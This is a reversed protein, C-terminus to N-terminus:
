GRRLRCKKPWPPCARWPQLLRDRSCPQQMAAADGKCMPKTGAAARQSAAMTHATGSGCGDLGGAPLAAAAVPFAPSAAAAETVRMGATFGRPWTEDRGSTQAALQSKIGLIM